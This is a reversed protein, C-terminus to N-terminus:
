DISIPTGHTDRKKRFTVELVGNRYTSEVTLRDIDVPFTLEKFYRRDVNDVEITLGHM